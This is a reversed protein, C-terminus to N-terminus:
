STHRSPHASTWFWSVCKQKQLDLRVVKYNAKYTIIRKKQIENWFTYKRILIVLELVFSWYRFNEWIIFKWSEFFLCVFFFGLFSSSYFNEQLSKGPLGTALVGPDWYLPWPEIWPWPVLDWMGCSLTQM